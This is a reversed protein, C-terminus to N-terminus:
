VIGEVALQEIGKLLTFDMETIGDESHTSLIFTIHNYQILMDPHHNLKEALVAVTNALAMAKSFDSFRYTKTLKGGVLEWGRFAKLKQQVEEFLLLMKSLNNRGRGKDRGVGPLCVLKSM